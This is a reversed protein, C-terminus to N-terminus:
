PTKRNRKTPKPTGKKPTKAAGTRASPTESLSQVPESVPRAIRREIEAVRTELLRLRADTMISM